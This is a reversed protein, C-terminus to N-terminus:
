FKSALEDASADPFETALDFLRAWSAARVTQSGPATGLIAEAARAAREVVTRQIEIAKLTAVSIKGNFNNAIEAAQAEPTMTGGTDTPHVTLFLEPEGKGQDVFIQNGRAIYGM